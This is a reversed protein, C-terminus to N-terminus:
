YVAQLLCSWYKSHSYDWLCLLFQPKVIVLKASFFVIYLETTHLIFLQLYVILLGNRSLMVSVFCCFLFYPAIVKISFDSNCLLGDLLESCLWYKTWKQQRILSWLANKNWLVNNFFVHWPTEVWQVIVSHAGEQWDHHSLSVEQHSLSVEQFLIIQNTLYYSNLQWM